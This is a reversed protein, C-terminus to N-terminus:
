ADLTGRAPSIVRRQALEPLCGSAKAQSRPIAPTTSQEYSPGPVPDMNATRLERLCEVRTHQSRRHPIAPRAAARDQPFHEHTPRSLRTARRIADHGRTRHALDRDSRADDRPHTAPRGRRRHRTRSSRAQGQTLAAQRDIAQRVYPMRPRQGSGPDGSTARQLRTWAQPQAATEGFLRFSAQSSAPETGTAHPPAQRSRRLCAKPVLTPSRDQPTWQRDSAETRRPRLPPMARRSRSCRRSPHSSCPAFEM